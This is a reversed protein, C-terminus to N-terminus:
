SKILYGNKRMFILAIVFRLAAARMSSLFAAATHDQIGPTKVDARVPAASRAPEGTKDLAARRSHTVKGTRYM